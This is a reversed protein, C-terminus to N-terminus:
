GKKQICADRLVGEVEKAMRSVGFKKKAFIQAQQGMANRKGENKLLDVIGKLFVDYDGSANVGIGQGVIYGCPDYDFSVSPKGQLWAQIFINSFGEPVCTHIHFLSTALLGNVEFLDRKGLYFLNSPIRKKDKLWNYHKSNMAGVMVVDVDYARLDGALKVVLEPRKPRKINAVWLVYPRIHEYGFKINDAMGNAIFRTDKIVSFRIFDANNVTVSDVYRFGQHNWRSKLKNVLMKKKGKLGNFSKTSWPMLDNIHSAAFVFPIGFSKSFSAIAFLFNKNYRWYIVDPKSNKIAQIIAKSDNEVVILEYRVDNEIKKFRKRSPAIYTVDHGRGQLESAIFASQIESGGLVQFVHQNIIAIKM